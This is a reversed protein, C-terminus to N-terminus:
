IQVALARREERRRLNGSSSRSSESRATLSRVTNLVVSEGEGLAEVELFLQHCIDEYSFQPHGRKKLLYEVYRIARDILKNNSPRVWTMVNSEIRGIRAMVLLSHANMLMKLFLHEFLAPMEGVAASHQFKGLRFKMAAGSKEILFHNQKAGALKKERLKPLRESFDFGFLRKSGAVGKLVKWELPRPKRLLLQEWASESDKTGTLTIYALAAKTKSERQNEFGPLSFTPSRETTDTLLTIAYDRTEYLLYEGAKYAASETEVFPTLFTYDSKKLFQSFGLLSTNQYSPQHQLLAWGAALQLVTTAQLRTSGSLSMPGVALCIKQIKPNKLVRRSRTVKQLIEDPNCYLFWPKRKSIKAAQETAGIVSPTEGGETCSVLLDNKGFGLERVQRAGFEPHDEFNEISHVLALDGGSMFGIVRDKEEASVEMRWFTEISLALRGTAGCGYFFVRGGERLTAEIDRALLSIEEEKKVVAQVAEVDVSQLLALARPLDTFAMESLGHTRPHQQETPLIGLHFDKAKKLFTKAHQHARARAKPSIQM